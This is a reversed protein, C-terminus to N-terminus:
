KKKESAAITAVNIADEANLVAGRLVARVPADVDEDLMGRAVNMKGRVVELAALLRRELETLAASM